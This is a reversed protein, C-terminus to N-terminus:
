NNSYSGMIYHKMDENNEQSMRLVEKVLDGISVIGVLKTDDFIPMHRVKKENMLGMIQYVSDKISARIFKNSPTMIEHVKTGKIDGNADYLTKLIDRETMIGVVSDGDMVMLAGIHKSNLMKLAVCVVDDKKVSIIEEGKKKVVEIISM